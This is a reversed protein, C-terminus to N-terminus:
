PKALPQLIQQMRRRDVTKPLAKMAYWLHETVSGLYRPPCSEASRDHRWSTAEYQRTLRLMETPSLNFREAALRWHADRFEHAQHQQAVTTPHHQGRRRTLGFAADLTAIRGDLVARFNACLRHWDSAGIRELHELRSIVGDLWARAEQEDTM